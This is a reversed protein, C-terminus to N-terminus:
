SDTVNGVVAVAEIEVNAGKPLAVVQYCVRAPQKSPFYKAYVENVAAFDNINKLLVTAKIVKDFSTGAAELIVGINKLVQDVEAAAGGPVIEMTEPIVGIQGSIYLTENVQVAQSFPGINKPGKSTHIIKRVISSAM